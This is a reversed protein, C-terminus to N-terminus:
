FGDLFLGGYCEVAQQWQSREVAERFTWVDATVFMRDLRLRERDAVIADPGLAERLANLAQSLLNRAHQADNDPWLYFLIRDRSFGHPHAALLALLAIRHRQAARGTLPGSDTAVSVTGLLQLAVM